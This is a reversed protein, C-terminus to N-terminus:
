SLSRYYYFGAVIMERHAPSRLPAAPGPRPPSCAVRGRLARGGAAVRAAAANCAAVRVPDDALEEVLQVRQRLQAVHNDEARGVAQIENIRRNDGGTSESEDDLEPLQVLVLSLLHKLNVRGLDRQVIVDQEGLQGPAGLAERSGVNSRYALPRCHPPDLLEDAILPRVVVRRGLPECDRARIELCSDVLNRPERGSAM